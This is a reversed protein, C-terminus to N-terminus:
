APDHATVEPAILGASVLIARDEASLVQHAVNGNADALHIARLSLLMGLAKLDGGLAKERLRMLMAKESSVRKRKGNITVTIPQALVEALLTAVNAKGRTRGKPNGSQGPKFRSHLPPRGYGVAEQEGQPENDHPAETM